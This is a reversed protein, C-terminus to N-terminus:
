CARQKILYLYGLISGYYGWQALAGLLCPGPVGLLALILLVWPQITVIYVFLQIVSDLTQCFGPLKSCLWAWLALLALGVAATTWAAVWLAAAGPNGNACGAFWMLVAASFFAIIAAALLAACLSWGKCFPNWWPCGDGNGAGGCKPVDFGQTALVVCSGCTLTVSVSHTGPTSYPHSQTDSFSPGSSPIITQATSQDDFVYHLVCGQVAPSVTVTITVTASQGSGACGAVSPPGIVVTPCPCSQLPGVVVPVDSCGTPSIVRLSATYTGPTYFHPETWPSNPPVAFGNGLHGDGFDLQAFVENPCGAGTAPVVTATFTVLRRGQDCEGPTVQIQVSPCCAQCPIQLLSRTDTCSTGDAAIGDAHVTIPYNPDNCNVCNAYKLQAPSFVAQWQGSTVPVTLSAVEGHPCFILVKVSPCGTATGSVTLSTLPPGQGIINQISISCPM